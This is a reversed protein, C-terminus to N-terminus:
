KLKIKRNKKPFLKQVPSAIIHQDHIDKNSLAVYRKTMSIDAHGMIKQLAIVHGENRLFNLAFTHRLDYPRIKKGIRKAYRAVRQYWSNVEMMCGEYTCFIPVSQDWQSYRANLLKKIVKATQISIPLTRALRTKANQSKVRIELVSIDIDEPLLTLAEKPRIGTDISLLMLSYDRLGTFTSLDPCDLLKVIDHESIDVIRGPNRRKKIKCTPNEDFLGENVCWGFFIKLNSLRLNFTSVSVKKGLYDLICKRVNEKEYAQPYLKFFRKVHSDYDFVTRDSKGEARKEFIFTELASEWIPYINRPDLKNGAM